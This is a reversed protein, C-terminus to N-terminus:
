TFQAASLQLYAWDCRVPRLHAQRGKEQDLGLFPREFSIKEPEGAVAALHFPTGQIPRPDM